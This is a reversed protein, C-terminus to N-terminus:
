IREGCEPCVGSVNGTLDYGCKICCPVGCETLQRWLSRQIRRRFLVILVYPCLLVVIVPVLGFLSDPTTQRTMMYVMLLILLVWIVVAFAVSKM